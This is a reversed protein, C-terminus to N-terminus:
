DRIPYDRLAREIRSRASLSLRRIGLLRSLEWAIDEVQLGAAGSRLEESCIEEASRVHDDSAPIRFTAWDRRAAADPWVFTGGATDAWRLFRRGKLGLVRERILRGSRQFGHARAIREVLVDDLLPAEIKVVYSTLELLIPDYSREYFLEPRLVDNFRSLDARRFVAAASIPPAVELRAEVARAFHEPAAESWAPAEAVVDGAPEAASTTSRHSSAVTAQVTRRSAELTVRLRQDLKELAASRYGGTPRGSGSSSGASARLVRRPGQGQRAGDGLQSLRRRRVGRRRSLRGPRDPNVIGLDIRYRSVGIQPVVTWGRERLGRAVAQEFPSDYGGM